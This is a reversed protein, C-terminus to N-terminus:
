SYQFYIDAYDVPGSLLRDMLRTLEADGLGAPELLSRRAQEILQTSPNEVINRPIRNSLSPNYLRPAPPVVCTFRAKRRSDPNNKNAGEACDTRHLLHLQPERVATPTSKKAQGFFLVCFFLCGSPRLRGVASRPNPGAGLWLVTGTSHTPLPCGLGSGTRANACVRRHAFGRGVPGRLLM